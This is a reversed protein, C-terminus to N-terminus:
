DLAFYLKTFASLSTLPKLRRNSIKNRRGGKEKDQTRFDLPLICLVNSHTIHVNANFKARTLNRCRYHSLPGPLSKPYLGKWM